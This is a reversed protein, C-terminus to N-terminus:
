GMAGQPQQQSQGLRAMIMELLRARAPDMAQNRQRDEEEMRQRREMEDRQMGLARENQVAGFAGGVTDGLAKINAGSKFFNGGGAALGRAGADQLGDMAGGKIASIGSGVLSGPGQSTMGIMGKANMTGLNPVKAGGRGFGPIGLKSGVGGLLLGGGFNLADKGLDVKGRKAMGGLTSGIAGGVPGGLMTGAIGGAIPAIAKAGRGLPRFVKRELSKFFSM